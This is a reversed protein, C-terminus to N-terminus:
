SDINVDDAMSESVWRRSSAGRPEGRRLVSALVWAKGWRYTRKLVKNKRGENVDVEVRRIRSHSLINIVYWGLESLIM